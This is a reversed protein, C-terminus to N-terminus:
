KSIRRIFNISRASKSAFRVKMAVPEAARTPATTAVDLRHQRVRATCLAREIPNDNRLVYQIMDRPYRRSRGKDDCVLRQARLGAAARIEHDGQAVLRLSADLGSSATRAVFETVRARAIAQRIPVPRERARIGGPSGTRTAAVGIETADIL